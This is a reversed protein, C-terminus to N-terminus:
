AGMWTHRARSGIYAERLMREVSSEQMERSQVPMAHTLALATGVDPSPLGRKKMDEVKELQLRGRGDYGYEPGTLDDKLQEDLHGDVALCGGGVTIWKKADDWMEMRKNTYLQPQMARGGPQVGQPQWGNARMIDIVGVGVGVEEIFMADLDYEKWLRMAEWALFHVDVERWKDIANLRRGQRTLLVSQDDGFRAVDLGAIRPAHEWENQQLVRQASAMVADEGIFQTSAVRPFEGLVRVRFFDGDDGYDEEWQKIQGKDAKRATRSDVRIGHWRHRWRRFCERFRGTNRTPNGFALWMAGPTTMAGETVEWITDDILSAEDYLFLVHREHTGAFAEAREKSWPVASAFWTSPAGVHYFKTATWKFWHSNIALRHWKALERWTKTNLQISTNATVVVQPHSRTSLFWLIIWAILATKGIGHGSRVAIRLAGAAAESPDAGRRLATEIQMLLGTQWEDPGDEDRLITRPDGWPFAIQVFRLPSWFCLAVQQELEGERAAADNDVQPPRAM